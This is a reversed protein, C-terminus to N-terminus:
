KQLNCVIEIERNENELKRIFIKIHNDPLLNEFHDPWEVFCINGSYLYEELGTRLAEDETKLRYLDIHYIPEGQRDYENIIAYTPSTVTNSVGLQLCASQVLTTKGAGLNGYIAFVPFDGSLRIIEESVPNLEEKNQVQFIM